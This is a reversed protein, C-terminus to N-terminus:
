GRPKDATGPPVIHSDLHETTYCEPELGHADVWEQLARHVREEGDAKMEESLDPWGAHDDGALEYFEEEMMEVIQRMSPFLERAFTRRAQATYVTAGGGQSAEMIAASVAEQRTDFGEQFVFDEAVFSWFWKGDYKDAM